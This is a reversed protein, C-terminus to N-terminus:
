IRSERQRHLKGIIYREAGAPRGAVFWLALVTVVYTAAGVLVKGALLALAGQDASGHWRALMLAMVATAALPRWCAAGLDRARMTPVQRVVAYAYAALGAAVVALRLWAIGLADAGAFPGALLAGFLLLQLWACYSSVRANGVALLLYAGSATLALVANILGLAQLYPVAGLWPRGLVAMVLEEAVLSIGIAAPVGIMAHVGLALLFVRRLNSPAARTEVFAPLLLRGLPALLETSPLAAIEDALTYAGMTTAESRRGVVLKDLRTDAYGGINRVLIWQSFSWMEKAKALSLRPRFPHLAYSFIVGAVRSALSGIVLAWYSHLLFAATIAVTTGSIRKLFFFRFDKGFEMNKQFGVIGINELGGILISAAMVHMVSVVRPDHYYAAVPWSGAFVIVAAVLSQILRITWGTHFDEDAADRKQILAVHVGLDLVVDILGVVVAAMAVVGFDAPVLLRVLVLTSVLGILRDTWRMAVVIAASVLITTKGAM